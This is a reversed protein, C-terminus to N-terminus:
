HLNCNHSLFNIKKIPINEKNELERLLVKKITAMVRSKDETREVIDPYPPGEIGIHHVINGNQFIILVNSYNLYAINRM